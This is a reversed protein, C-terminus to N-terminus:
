GGLLLLLLLLFLLTLVREGVAVSVVINIGKGGSASQSHSGFFRVVYVCVRVVVDQMAIELKVVLYSHYRHHPQWCSM